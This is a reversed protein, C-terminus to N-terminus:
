EQPIHSFTGTMVTGTGTSLVINFNGSVEDPSSATINLTGSMSFLGGSSPLAANWIGIVNGSPGVTYTGVPFNNVSHLAIEVHKIEAGVTKEAELDNTFATASDATYTVGDVTWSFTGKTKQNKPKNCSVSIVSVLLLMSVVFHCISQIRM